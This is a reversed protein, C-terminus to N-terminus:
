PRRRGDLHAPDAARSAIGVRVPDAAVGTPQDRHRCAVHVLMPQDDPDPHRHMIDPVAAPTGTSTLATGLAIRMADGACCLRRGAYPPRPVRERRTGPPTILGRGDATASGHPMRPAAVGHDTGHLAQLM